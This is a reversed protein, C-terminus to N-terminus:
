RRVRTSFLEMWSELAELGPIGRTVGASALASIVGGIPSADIAQRLGYAASALTDLGVGVGLWPPAPSVLIQKAAVAASLAGPTRQTFIKHAVSGRLSVGTQVPGFERSVGRVVADHAGEFSKPLDGTWELIRLPGVIADFVGGRRRFAFAHELARDGHLCVVCVQEDSVIGDIMRRIMDPAPIPVRARASPFMRLAGARELERLSEVVGWIQDLYDQDPRVRLAVREALDELAGDRLVIVRTARHVYALAEPDSASRIGSIRGRDSHTAGLVAADEDVVVILVGRRESPTPSVRRARSGRPPRLLDVLASHSAADFGEFCLSDDIM